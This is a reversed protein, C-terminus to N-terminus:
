PCQGDTTHQIAFALRDTSTVLATRKAAAEYGRDLKANLEEAQVAANPQVGRQNCMWCPVKRLMGEDYKDLDAPSIRIEDAFFLVSMGECFPCEPRSDNPGAYSM